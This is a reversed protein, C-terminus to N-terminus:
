MPPGLGRPIRARASSATLRTLWSRTTALAESLKKIEAIEEKTKASVVLDTYVQLIERLKQEQAADALSGMEIFLTLERIRWRGDPLRFAEEEVFDVHDALVRCANAVADPLYPKLWGEFSMRRPKCVM